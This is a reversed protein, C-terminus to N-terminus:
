EFLGYLIKLLIGRKSRAVYDSAITQSVVFANKKFSLLIKLVGYWFM